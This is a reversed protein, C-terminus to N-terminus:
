KINLFLCIISYFYIIVGCIKIFTEYMDSMQNEDVDKISFIHTIFFIKSSYNICLISVLMLFSYKFFVFWTLKSNLYNIIFLIILILTAVVLFFINLFKSM